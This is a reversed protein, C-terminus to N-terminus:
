SREMIPTLVFLWAGAGAAAVLLSGWAYAQATASPTATAAHALALAGVLLAGDGAVYALRAGPWGLATPLTKSWVVTGRVCAAALLVVAVPGLHAYPAGYVVALVRDALPAAVAVVIAGAAALLASARLVSRRLARFDHALVAAGMRPYLQPGVPSLSSLYFRGPAAAIKLITVLAPGGLVGALTLIGSDSAVAVSTAASSKLGFRVLGGPAPGTGRAPPGFRRAVARRAAVGLAASTVVGVAVAATLYGVPGAVLLGGVSGLAGALTGALRLAALRRLRETIVFGSGALGASATVGCALMALLLLRAQDAGLWGLDGALLALAGGAAAAVAGFLVDVALLRDYLWTGRGAATQQYAPVFRLAVDDVRPDWV